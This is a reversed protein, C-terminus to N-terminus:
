NQSSATFFDNFTYARSATGGPDFLSGIVSFLKSILSSSGGSAASGEVFETGKYYAIFKGLGRRM